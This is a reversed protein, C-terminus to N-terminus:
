YEVKSIPVLCLLFGNKAMQHSAQPISSANLQRWLLQISKLKVNHIRIRRMIKITNRQLAKSREREGM